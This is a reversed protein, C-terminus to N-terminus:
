KSFIDDFNVYQLIFTLIKDHKFDPAQDPISPVGLMDLPVIDRFFLNLLDTTTITKHEISM